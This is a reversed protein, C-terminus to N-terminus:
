DSSGGGCGSSSSCSSGGDSGSSGCGSSSSGSDSSGGTSRPYLDHAFAFAAAPLATVGFMAALLAVHRGGRGPQLQNARRVLDGLLERLSQLSREGAQTRRSRGMAQALFAALLTMLVLFLLNSRGALLTQVVRAAAVGLLVALALWRARRRAAEDADSVVLGDRKLGAEVAETAARVQPDQPLAQADVPAARAAEVLARDVLDGGVMAKGEATPGIRGDPTVYLQQRDVLSVVAVRAVEDPGHRLCAIRYPDAALAQLSAPESGRGYRRLWRHLVVLVGVSLVAHFALFQPGDLDFPFM